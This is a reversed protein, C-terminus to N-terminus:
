GKTKRDFNQKMPFEVINKRCRIAYHKQNKYTVMIMKMQNIEQLLSTNNNDLVDKIVPHNASKTRKLMVNM